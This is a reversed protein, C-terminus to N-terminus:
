YVQENTLYVKSSLVLRPDHRFRVPGDGEVNDREESEGEELPLAAGTSDM